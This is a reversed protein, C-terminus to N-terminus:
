AVRGFFHLNGTHDIISAGLAKSFMHNGNYVSGDIWLYTVSSSDICFNPLELVPPRKAVDLLWQPVEFLGHSALHPQDDDWPKPGIMSSVRNCDCTLHGITEKEYGCFRCAPTKVYSLMTSDTQQRAHVLRRVLQLQKMWNGNRRGGHSKVVPVWPFSTLM